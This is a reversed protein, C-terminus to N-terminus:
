TGRLAGAVALNAGGCRRACRRKLLPSTTPLRLSRIPPLPAAHGIGGEFWQLGNALAGHDFRWVRRDVVKLLILRDLFLGGEGYDATVVARYDHDSVPHDRLTFACPTPHNDRLVEFGGAVPKLSYRHFPNSPHAAGNLPIPSYLPMGVDALWLGGSLNTLVIATHCGCRDGMDNM